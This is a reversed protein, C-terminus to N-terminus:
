WKVKAGSSTTELRRNRQVGYLIVAGDPLFTAIDESDNEFVTNVDFRIRNITGDHYIKSEDSAGVKCQTIVWTLTIDM